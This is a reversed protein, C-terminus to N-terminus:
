KIHVQRSSNNEEKQLFRSLEDVPLPKCFHYGQIQDCNNQKLFALQNETDVGEAIVKMKMSHAMKIIAIVITAASNDTTIDDIFSKDIKLSDFALLKLYNLSSYGTGFDDISIHMGLKKLDFIINSNKEINQMILTETIEFEILQGDIQHENLISEITKIFGTEQFNRVSLNIAV